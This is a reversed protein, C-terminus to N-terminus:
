RYAAADIGRRARLALEGCGKGKCKGWERKKREKGHGKGPARGRCEVLHNPLATPERLPAATPQLSSEPGGFRLHFCALSASNHVFMNSFYSTKGSLQQLTLLYTLCSSLRTPLVGHHEKSCPDSLDM